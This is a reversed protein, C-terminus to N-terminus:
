SGDAPAKIKLKGSFAFDTVAGPTDRDDVWMHVSRWKSGLCFIASQLTDAPLLLRAYFGLDQREIPDKHLQGVDPGEILIERPLPSLGLRIAKSRCEEPALIIGEISVAEVCLLGADPAHEGSLPAPRMGVHLPWDWDQIEVVFLTSSM